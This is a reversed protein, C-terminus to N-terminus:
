VISWTSGAPVTVVVGANVTIPGFSGANQGVTISYSGTVNTPNEWFVLNGAAGKAGSGPPILTKIVGVTVKKTIGGDVIPLVASDPPTTLLSTLNSIKVGAM